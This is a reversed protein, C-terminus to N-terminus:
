QAFLTRAITQVSAEILNVSRVFVEYEKGFPDEVGKASAILPRLMPALRIIQLLRDACSNTWQLRQDREAAQCLMAFEDILFIKRAARPEIDILENAQGRSFCLVVTAEQLDRAQVFQSRSSSADIGRERLLQVITPEAPSGHMHRLLGCSRIICDPLVQAPLTMDTQAQDLQRQSPQIQDPQTMDPQTMDPQIQVSLTKAPLGQDSQVYGLQVYGLQVHGLQMQTQQSIDDSRVGSIDHTGDSVRRGYQAAAHRLMYEGTVSRCINGHCVFLITPVAPKQQRQTPKQASQQKSQQVTQQVAPQAPQHISQRQVQQTSQENSQQTTQVVTQQVSHQALQRVSSANMASLNAASHGTNVKDKDAIPRQSPTQSSAHPGSVSRTSSITWSVGANGMQIPPAPAPSTASSSAPLSASDKQRREVAQRTHRGRCAGKNATGDANNRVNKGNNGVANDINNGATHADEGASGWFSRGLGVM